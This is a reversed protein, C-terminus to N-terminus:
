IPSNRASQSEGNKDRTAYLHRTTAQSPSAVNGERLQGRSQAAQRIREDLGDTIHRNEEPAWHSYYDDTVKISAHGAQKSAYAINGSSAVIDTCFTQRFNQFTVHRDLGALRVVQRLVRREFTSGSHIPMGRRTTFVFHSIPRGKALAERQMLSRHARFEECTERSLNVVRVRNKKTRDIVRGARFQREVTLTRHELDFDIWKVGFCESLRLGTRMALFFLFHYRPVRRRAAGLLALQHEPSLPRIRKKKDVVDRLLKGFRVAPNTLNTMKREVILWEFTQRIPALLNRCTAKGRKRGAPDSSGTLLGQFLRLLDDRQISHVSRAGLRPYVHLRLLREYNLRTDEEMTQFASREQLYATVAQELSLSADPPRAPASFSLDNAALKIRIQSAALEAAKWDKGVYKRIRGTPLRKDHVVIWANGDGKLDVVKVGLPV